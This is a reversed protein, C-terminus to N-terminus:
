CPKPDMRGYTAVIRPKQATTNGSGGQLLDAVKLGVASVIAETSCGAHCRVLVRGDQGGGVSLSANRDDHAPCLATWGTPTEKVSDLVSLFERIKM